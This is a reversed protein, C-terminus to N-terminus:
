LNRLGFTQLQAYYTTGAPPRFPRQSRRKLHRILRERTFRNVHRFAVRSYGHRFYNVWSRLWGNTEAIMDTIPMFCRHSGTLERLKDRARAQAKKSPFLNLYRYTGGHLDRDYRFTFGLFDVSATPENLDAMRTKEVTFKEIGEQFGPHKYFAPSFM